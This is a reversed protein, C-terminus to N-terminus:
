KSPIQNSCFYKAFAEDISDKSNDISYEYIENIAYVVDQANCENAHNKKVFSMVYECVQQMITPNYKVLIKRKIAISKRDVLEDISCNLADALKVISYIGPNKSRDHIINFIFNRSLGARREIKSYDISRQKTIELLKKKLAGM